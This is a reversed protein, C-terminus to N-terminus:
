RSSWRDYLGGSLAIVVAGRNRRRPVVSVRRPSSSRAGSSVSHPAHLAGRPDDQSQGGQARGADRENDPRAQEIRGRGSDAPERASSALRSGFHLARDPDERDTRPPQPELRAGDPGIPDDEIKLERWRLGRRSGQQESGTRRAERRGDQPGIALRAPPLDLGLLLPAPGPAPHQLHDAEPDAVAGPHDELACGHGSFRRRPQTDLLDTEEGGLGAEGPIGAPKEALKRIPPDVVTDEGARAEAQRPETRDGGEPDRPGPDPESRGEREQQGECRGAHLQPDDM